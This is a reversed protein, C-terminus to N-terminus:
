KFQGTDKIFYLLLLSIMVFFPLLWLFTFFVPSSVTIFLGPIFIMITNFLFVATNTVSLATGRTENTSTEGVMTYFLMAGSLFFGILFSIIKIILLTQLQYHPLYIGMLLTMVGLILSMHIIMKRSKAIDSLWGLLPAGVGMGAFILGGILAAEMNQVSYYAQIKIYWFGAYALLVGFSTAAALACLILQSKNIVAQISKKFSINEQFQYNSPSKIFAFSLALLIFGFLALIRYLQNWSHVQLEWLFLYHIIGASICSIAQTLGFLIPFLQARFWQAILVGIAIFAFSAGIGQVLNSLALLVTNSAYSTMINGIALIAIGGSVIFKSNYKDLLYGAPIQMCAFGLIFASMALSINTDSIHLSKQITNTFVSAATNL